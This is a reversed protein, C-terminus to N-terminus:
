AKHPRLCFRLQQSVRKRACRKRDVGHLPLNHVIILKGAWGRNQPNGLVTADGTRTIWDLQADQGTKAFTSADVQRLEAILRYNDFSTGRLSAPVEQYDALPVDADGIKTHDKHIFSSWFWFPVDKTIIHLAVLM